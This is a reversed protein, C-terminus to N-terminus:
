YTILLRLVDVGVDDSDDGVGDVVVDDDDGVSAAPASPSTATHSRQSLLKAGSISLITFCHSLMAQIQPFLFSM